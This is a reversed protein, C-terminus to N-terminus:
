NFDVYRLFNLTLELLNKGKKTKWLSFVLRSIFVV